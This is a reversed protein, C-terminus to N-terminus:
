GAYYIRRILPLTVRGVYSIVSYTYLGFLKLFTIFDQIKLRRFLAIFLLKENAEANQIDNEDVIYDIDEHYNIQRINQSGLTNGENFTEAPPENLALQTNRSNDAKSKKLRPKKDYSIYPQDILPYEQKLKLIEEEIEPFKKNIEKNTAVSNKKISSHLYDIMECISHFEKQPPVLQFKMQNVFIKTYEKPIKKIILKSFEAFQDKLKVKIKRSRNVFPNFLLILEEDDM